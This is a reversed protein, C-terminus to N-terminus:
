KEQSLEREIIRQIESDEERQKALREEKEAKGQATIFLDAM